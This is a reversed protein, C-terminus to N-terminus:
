LSRRVVDLLELPSFPKVLYADAGAQSAAERDAMQARATLMVVKARSLVPDQKLLRCLQLGDLAGPMMVDLLILDPRVRQAEALGREGNEAEHLAYDEFELTMRILERIEAQDEVILVCTM